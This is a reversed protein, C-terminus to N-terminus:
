RRMMARLQENTSQSSQASSRQVNASHNPPSATRFGRSTRTAHKWRIRAGPKRLPKSIRSAKRRTARLCAKQTRVWIPKTTRRRWRGGAALGSNSTSSGTARSVRRPATPFNRSSSSITRQRAVRRPKPMSVRPMPARPNSSVSRSPSLYSLFVVGDLESSISRQWRPSMMVHQREYKLRFRDPILRYDFSEVNAVAPYNFNALIRAEPPVERAIRRGVARTSASRARSRVEFRLARARASGADCARATPPRAKAGSGRKTMEVTM